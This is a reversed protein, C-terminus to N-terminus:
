LPLKEDLDIARAQCGPCSSIHTGAVKDVLALPQGLAAHILGGAGKIPQAVIYAKFVADYEGGDMVLVGDAETSIAEVAAIYGERFKPAIKLMKTRALKM